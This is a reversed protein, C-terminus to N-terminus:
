KKKKARYYRHCGGCGIKGTNAFQAMAAKADGTKLVAALKGSETTLGAAAKRYGAWDTWIKPLAESKGAEQGSGKPTVTTIGASLWNMAMAHRAAAKIRNSDGSVIAGKIAGFHTGISRMVAKRHALTEAGSAAVAEHTLSAFAVFSLAAISGAAIVVKSSKM